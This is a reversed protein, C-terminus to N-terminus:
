GTMITADAAIRGYDFCVPAVHGANGTAADVAV